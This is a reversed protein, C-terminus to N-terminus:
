GEVPKAAIARPDDYALDVCTITRTETCYFDVEGHAPWLVALEDTSSGRAVCGNQKTTSWRDEATVLVPYNAAKVKVSTTM